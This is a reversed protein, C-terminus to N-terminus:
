KNTYNLYEEVTLGQDMIQHADKSSGVYTYHWSEYSTGTIHEKGKPYRLVYGYDACNEKLWKQTTTKATKEANDWDNGFGKELIDVAKGTQHESHDPYATSNDYLSARKLNEQDERTRYGSIVTPDGGNKKCDDLMRNLADNADKDLRMNDYEAYKNSINALNPKYDDPIPSWPNVLLINKRREDIIKQAENSAFVENAAYASFAMGHMGWLKALQQDAQFGAQITKKADEADAIAMQRIKKAMKLSALYADLFSKFVAFDTKFNGLQVVINVTGLKSGKSRVDNVLSLAEVTYKVEKNAM